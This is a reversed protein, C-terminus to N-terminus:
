RKSNVEKNRFKEQLLSFVEPAAKDIRTPKWDRDVWMHKTNGKTLFKGYPEMAQKSDSNTSSLDEELLRVEYEFELRVASFSIINTFISVKEDYRAPRRYQIDINVVPLLLGLKEMESYAIGANRMMETRGIEFWGVYNAHHVVGMQDTDQYHVRLQHQHWQNQM